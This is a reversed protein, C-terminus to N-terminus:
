LNGESKPLILPLIDLVILNDLNQERKLHDYFLPPYDATFVIVMNVDPINMITQGGYGLAYYVNYGSIRKIWWSYGYSIGGWADHFSPKLSHSVWEKPVLQQDRFQGNQLYLQGFAAMDRPTLYMESGGFFIGEPAKDWRNISIRMHNLLHTQAFTLTDMGSVKTLVASLLHTQITGYNFGSGPTNSLPLKLISKTWNDSFYVYNNVNETFEFGASMTLLQKITINRKEPSDPPFFEPLIEFIPQDISKLYGKEIAIGVLASIISKSVSKINVAREKNFGAAYWEAILIGNKVVLVSRLGDTKKAKKYLLEVGPHEAIELNASRYQPKDFEFKELKALFGIYWAGSCSSLL